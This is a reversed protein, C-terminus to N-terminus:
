RQAEVDFTARAAALRSRLADADVAAEEELQAIWLDLADRMHRLRDAVPAANTALIGAGMEPDGKALRTMDRWGSAALDRAAPWSEAWHPGAVSEVLAAAVVLPMHSIAAVAADHGAALMRVTRAGTATALGEARALDEARTAAGPVIV